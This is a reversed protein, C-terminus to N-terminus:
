ASTSCLRVAEKFDLKGEYIAKGTIVGTLNKFGLLNLKKIDEISAVGGSAIVLISVAGLM